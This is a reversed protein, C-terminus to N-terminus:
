VKAQQKSQQANCAFAVSHLMSCRDRATSARCHDRKILQLLLSACPHMHCAGQQSAPALGPRHNFCPATSCQAVRFCIGSIAVKTCFRRSASTNIRIYLLAGVKSIPNVEFLRPHIFDSILAKSIKSATSLVSCFRIYFFVM